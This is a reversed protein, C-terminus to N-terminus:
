PELHGATRLSALLADVKDAIAQVEAQTPPSSTVQNLDAVAGAALPQNIYKTLGDHVLIDGAAEATSQVDAISNITSGTFDIQNWFIGSAETIRRIISNFLGLTTRDFKAGVPIKIPTAM